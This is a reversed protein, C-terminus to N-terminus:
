LPSSAQNLIPNATIKFRYNSAQELQVTFEKSQLVTAFKSSVPETVSQLLAKATGSEVSEIRFLHDRKDDPRGPFLSWIAKHNEYGNAAKLKILSIFM